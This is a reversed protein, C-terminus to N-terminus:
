KGGGEGTIKQLEDLTVPYTTAMAELSPDQFIVYPPLELKKAIKKRLDKLIAYLVPDVACVGGGKM